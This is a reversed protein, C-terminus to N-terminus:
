SLGAPPLTPPPFPPPGRRLVFPRPGAGPMLDEAAAPSPTHHLTM